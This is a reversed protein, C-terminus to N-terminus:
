FVSVHIHDYHGGSPSTADYIGGGTYTQWTGKSAYWIKGQWIIYHVGYVGAHKILWATMQDGSAIQAANPFGSSYAIDCAKGQPHDSKPNWAHPDWCSLSPYSLGNSKIGNVLALTRPTICGRGNTPDPCITAQETPWSGDPNPGAPAPGGAPPCGNTLNSTATAETETGDGYPDGARDLDAGITAALDKAAKEHQAYADPHGSAQVAQAADNLSMDMWEPVKRLHEYFSRAATAPDSPDKWGMSPRQQLWGISDLDGYDLNRMTSEQWGTMLIILVARGPMNMETAVDDATKALTEAESTGTDVAPLFPSDFMTCADGSTEEGEPAGGAFPAILILGLVLALVIIVAAKALIGKGATAGITLAVDRLSQNSDSM